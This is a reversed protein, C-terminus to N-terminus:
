LSDDLSLARFQGQLWLLASQRGLNLGDFTKLNWGDLARLSALKNVSELGENDYTIVAIAVLNEHSAMTLKAEFAFSYKNIKNILLAFNNPFKETLYDNYEEIMELSIEIDQKFIIEAIKDTLINIKAFNLENEMM